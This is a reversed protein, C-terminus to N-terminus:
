DKDSQYNDYVQTAIDELDADDIDGCIDDYWEGLGIADEEVVTEESGFDVIVGGDDDVEISTTSEEEVGIDMPVVNSKMLDYPNKEVAM